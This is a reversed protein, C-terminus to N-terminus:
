HVAPLSNRTIKFPGKHQYLMQKLDLVSQGSSTRQGDLLFGPDEKGLQLRHDSRSFHELSIGLAGAKRFACVCLHVRSCYSPDLWFITATRDREVKGDLM